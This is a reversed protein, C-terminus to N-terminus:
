PTSARILARSVPRELAQSALRTLLWVVSVFLLAVYFAFPPFSKMGAGGMHVVPCNDEPDFDGGNVGFEKIMRICEASLLNSCDAKIPETANRLPGDYHTYGLHWDELGTKAHGGQELFYTYEFFHKSTTNYMIRQGVTWNAPVGHGNTAPKALDFGTFPVMPSSANYSSQGDWYEALRYEPEDGDDGDYGFARVATAAVALLPLLRM